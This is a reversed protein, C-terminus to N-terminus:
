QLHRVAQVAFGYKITESSASPAIHLVCQPAVAQQRLPPHVGIAIRAKRTPHCGKEELVRWLIGKHSGFPPRGGTNGARHTHCVAVRQDHIALAM